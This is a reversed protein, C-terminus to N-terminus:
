GSFGKLQKSLAPALKNVVLDDLRKEIKSHISDRILWWVPQAFINLIIRVANFRIRSVAGVVGGLRPKIHIGRQKIRVTTDKPTIALKNGSSHLHLQTSLFASPKRVAIHPRASAKLCKRRRRRFIRIKICKKLETEASGSVRPWSFKVKIGIHTPFLALELDSLQFDSLGNITLSRVAWDVGRERGTRDPLHLPDLHPKLAERSSYLIDKVCTEVSSASNLDCTLVTRGWQLLVTCLLVLTAPATPAAMM